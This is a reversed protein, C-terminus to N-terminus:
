LGLQVEVTTRRDVPRSPLRVEVLDSEMRGPRAGAGPFPTTQPRTQPPLVSASPEGAPSTRGLRVETNDVWVRTVQEGRPVRFRVVWERSTIAGPYTGRAPDAQWRVRNGQRRMQVQTKRFEGQKYRPSTTDDEYLLRQTASDSRPMWADVVVTKWPVEATHQVDPATLVLGGSRVFVPVHWLPSQVTHMRPGSIREGTWADAWEGPPIWLTREAEDPSKSPPAWSLECIAGGIREFYELRIPYTKGQELHVRGTVAAEAQDVWRDIVLQDGVFLRVGDDAVISFATYGTEPIPGITGTWRVSYHDGDMGPMPPERDWRFRINPDVRTAVPTGELAVGAFLEAQLGPNGTPTRLMENPITDLLWSSRDVPAVLIDDGLLFQRNDAAQEYRPWYLDGRRLMPTGDDFAQRAAAYLTPLLRYRMRIYETTIREAEFGFAWPYRIDGRTCHPRAVPSFMGFQMFRVYLEPSPMGAHGGLDESVFPHLALVGLDVGNEIGLTLFRWTALTDGSWWIPFRHAAPDPAYNRVGHDIGQVNSMIVPRTNPAFRQAIDHFLRMGWVEKRLGPVPEVLHTHWNRDYWWVDVGMAKLQTLNDYRYRLEASDLAREAVPEPHDNFMIRVNRERAQRLFRAMDPFFRRDVEYGHSANVRWDTDVVFMDLPIRKSRFTDIVELATEESYPHFRSTILGFMYLPPMPVPGTLRLFDRRLTAYGGGSNVFVYVDPTLNGLDWGSDPDVNGDPAPTAGWPPPMIRPSDPMVWASWRDSPAPLFAPRPVGTFQYLERGARCVVRPNGAPDLSVEFHTSRVVADRGTGRVAVPAGPWDREVVHFTIRDEFGKPGRMELRLLNPNLVQVRWDGLVVDECWAIQACLSAMCIGFIWKKM